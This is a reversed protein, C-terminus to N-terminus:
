SIHLHKQHVPLAHFDPYARIVPSVLDQLFDARFDVEGGLKRIEKSEEKLLFLVIRSPCTVMVIFWGKVASQTQKRTQKNLPGGELPSQTDM